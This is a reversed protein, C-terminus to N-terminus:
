SKLIQPIEIQSGCVFKNIHNTRISNFFLFGCIIFAFILFFISFKLKEFTNHLLTTIRTQTPNPDEGIKERM